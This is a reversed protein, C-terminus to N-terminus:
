AYSSSGGVAIYNDGMGTYNTVMKTSTPNTTASLLVIKSNLSKLDRLSQWSTAHRYCETLALHFEDVYIVQVGWNDLTGAFLSGISIQTSYRRRTVIMTICTVEKTATM